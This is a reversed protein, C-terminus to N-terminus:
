PRKRSNAKVAPWNTERRIRYCHMLGVRSRSSLGGVVVQAMMTAIDVLLAILMWRTGTTRGEGAEATGSAIAIVVGLTGTETMRGAVLPLLPRGRGRCVAEPGAGRGAIMGGVVGTVGGQLHRPPDPPPLVRRVVEARPARRQRAVSTAGPRPVLAEGEPLGQGLLLHLDRGQVAWLIPAPQQLVHELGRAPVPPLLPFEAGGQRRAEAIESSANATLM